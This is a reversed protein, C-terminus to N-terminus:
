DAPRLNSDERACSFLRLAVVEPGENEHPTAEHAELIWDSPAEHEARAIRGFACRGGTM